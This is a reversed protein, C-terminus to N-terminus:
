HLYAKFRVTLPLVGIPNLGTLDEHGRESMGYGRGKLLELQSWDNLEIQCKDYHTQSNLHM